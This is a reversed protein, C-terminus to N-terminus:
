AVAECWFQETRKSRSAGAFQRVQLLGESYRVAGSAGRRQVVSRCVQLSAVRAGISSGQASQARAQGACGQNAASEKGAGGQGGGAGVAGRHRGGAAHTRRFRLRDHRRAQSREVRGGGPELVGSRCAPFTESAQPPARHLARPDGSEPNLYGIVVADADSLDLSRIRGPELALHDVPRGTAGQATLVQALMAAAADDLEGRGGACLVTKGSATRSRRCSAIMRRVDDEADDENRRKRLRRRNKRLTRSKTPMTRSITSWRSRM